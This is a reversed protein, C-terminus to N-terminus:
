YKSHDTVAPFQYGFRQKSKTVSAVDLDETFHRSIQEGKKQRLYTVKNYSLLLLLV